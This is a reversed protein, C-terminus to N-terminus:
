SGPDLVFLAGDDFATTWVLGDVVIIDGGSAVDATIQEVRDGTQRDIRVLFDDGSRVWVSEDDLAVGGDPAAGADAEALVAGTKPDLRVTAAATGVWVEHDVAVAVPNDVELDLLVEGTAPDLRLVRDDVRCPLWLGADGGAVDTCRAPLDVDIAVEDTAPDIGVLHSGDSTLVWIRDYAGVLHGQAAQKKLEFTAVVELSDPDVKVVDPGTCTWVAGYSAGLGQCPGATPDIDVNVSDVAEHSEPDILLLEGSDHKVWVGRDDAVLWDPGGALDLRAVELDAAPRVSPETATTSPPDDGACATVALGLSAVALWRRFPHRAPVLM